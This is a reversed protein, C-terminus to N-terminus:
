PREHQLQTLVGNCIGMIVNAGVATASVPKNHYKQGEMPVNGDEDDFVSDIAEKISDADTGGQECTQLLSVIIYIPIDARVTRVTENNTKRAQSGDSLIAMFNKRVIIAAM